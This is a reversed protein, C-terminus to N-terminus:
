SAFSTSRGRTTSNKKLYFYKDGRLRTTEDRRTGGGGERKRPEREKGLEVVM